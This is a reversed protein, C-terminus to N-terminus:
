SFLNRITSSFQVMSELRTAEMYEIQPITCKHSIISNEIDLYDSSTKYLASSEISEIEEQYIPIAKLVPILVKFKHINKIRNTQEYLLRSNELDARRLIYEIERFRM